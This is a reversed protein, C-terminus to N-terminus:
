EVEDGDEDDEISTIRELRRSEDIIREFVRTVAEGALPGENVGRVHELVARERTPQYTDMGVTNKLHGIENACEARVNLLRVIDADLEDIRRRLEDLRGAIDLTVTRDARRDGQAM